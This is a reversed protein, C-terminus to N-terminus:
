EATVVESQRWNRESDGLRFDMKEETEIELHADQVMLRYFDSWFERIEKEPHKYGIIESAHILHMHFHHPIEDVHLLYDDVIKWINKYKGPIPGTFSGGGQEFPFKFIKKEFATYLICRRYWRLIAKSVHNKHIGDPGRVASILVSQQMMPLEIVWEQLVCKGM